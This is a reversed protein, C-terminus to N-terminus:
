SPGFNAVEGHPFSIPQCTSSLNAVERNLKGVRCNRPLRHVPLTIQASLLLGHLYNLVDVNSQPLWLHYSTLLTHPITNTHQIYSVHVYLPWCVTCITKDAELSVFIHTRDYSTSQAM